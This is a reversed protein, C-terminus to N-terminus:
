ILFEISEEFILVSKSLIFNPDVPKEIISEGWEKFLRESAQGDGHIKFINGRYNKWMRTLRDIESRNNDLESDVCLFSTM